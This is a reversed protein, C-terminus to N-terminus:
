KNLRDGRNRSVAHRVMRPLYHPSASDAKLVFADAGAAIVDARIDPSESGTFAICLASPFSRKFLAVTDKPSTSDPLKLDLLVCDVEKSALAQTAGRLSDAETVTFGGASDLKRRFIIRDERSDDVLLVSVLRDLDDHLPKDAFLDARLGDSDLRRDNKLAAVDRKIGKVEDVLGRFWWIASCCAAIAALGVGVPIATDKDLVKQVQGMFAGSIVASGIIVAWKGAVAKGFPLYAHIMPAASRTM